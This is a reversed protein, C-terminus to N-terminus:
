SRSASDGAKHPLQKLGMDDIILLDPLLYRRLANNEGAFAEDQLLERVTDFVSRYLVLVGAKIALYGLAQALHSKGVGFGPQGAFLYM